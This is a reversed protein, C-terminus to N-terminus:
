KLKYEEKLAGLLKIGTELPESYYKDVRRQLNFIRFRIAYSLDSLSKEDRNLLAMELNLVSDRSAPHEMLLTEVRTINTYNFVQRFCKTQEDRTYQNDDGRSSENNIAQDYETVLRVLKKNKFLRLTGSNKLQNLTSTKLSLLSGGLSRLVYYYLKAEPIKKKHIIMEDLLSILTDEYSILKKLNQITSSLNATDSVIDDYLARAYEKARDREIKHELQYEALFGCFVALFLMLFEWFYHTWKKRSTHSHHHVEM